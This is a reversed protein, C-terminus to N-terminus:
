GNWYRNKKKIDKVNRPSKDINSNLKKFNEEWGKEKDRNEDWKKLRKLIFECEKNKKM